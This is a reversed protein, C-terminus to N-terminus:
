EKHSESYKASKIIKPDSHPLTVAASLRLAFGFQESGSDRGNETPKLIDLSSVTM